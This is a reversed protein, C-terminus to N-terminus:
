PPRALPLSLTLGLSRSTKFCLVVGPIPPGGSRVKALRKPLGELGPTSVSRAIDSAICRPLDAAGTGLAARKINAVPLRTYGLITAAYPVVLRALRLLLARPRSVAFAPARESAYDSFGVPEPDGFPATAILGASPSAHGARRCGATANTAEVELESPAIQVVPM